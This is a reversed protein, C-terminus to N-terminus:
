RAAKSQDEGHCSGPERLAKRAALERSVGVRARAAAPQVPLGLAGGGGACRPEGGGAPM